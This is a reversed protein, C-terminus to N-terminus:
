KKCESLIARLKLIRAVLRESYGTEGALEKVSKSGLEKDLFERLIREPVSYATIRTRRVISVFYTSGIKVVYERGTTCASMLIEGVAKLYDKVVVYKEGSKEVIGNRTLWWVGRKVIYTRLGLLEKLEEISAGQLSYIQYLIPLLWPKETMLAILLGKGGVAPKSSMRLDRMVAYIETCVKHLLM